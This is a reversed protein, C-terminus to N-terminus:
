DKNSLFAPDGTWAGLKTWFAVSFSVTPGGIGDSDFYLETPMGLTVYNFASGDAMSSFALAGAGVKGAAFTPAGVAAATVGNNVTNAYTNDFPLHVVMDNTITGAALPLSVALGLVASWILRLRHPSHKM